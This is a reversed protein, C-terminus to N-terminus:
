DGGGLLGSGIWGRGFRPSIARCLKGTAGSGHEIAVARVDWGGAKRGTRFEELYGKAMSVMKPLGCALPPKQSPADRRSKRVMPPEKSPPSLKGPRRRASASCPPPERCLDIM